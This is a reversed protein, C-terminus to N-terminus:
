VIIIFSLLLSYGPLRYDSFYGIKRDMIREYHAADAKKIMNNELFYTADNYYHGEDGSLKNYSSFDYNFVM